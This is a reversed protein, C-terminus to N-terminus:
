RIFTRYTVLSSFNLNHKIQFRWRSVSEIPCGIFGKNNENRFTGGYLLLLVPEKNTALSSMNCVNVTRNFVTNYESSGFKKLQAQINLSANNLPHRTQLWLNLKDHMVSVNLNGYDSNHTATVGLIQIYNAATACNPFTTMTTVVFLFAVFSFMM